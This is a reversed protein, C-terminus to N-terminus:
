RRMQCHNPYKQFRHLILLSPNAWHCNLYRILITQCNIRSTKPIDPLPDPIDLPAEVVVVLLLDDPFPEPSPEPIDLPPEPSPEPIDLPPEPSPEPIDPPLELRDVPEEVVVADFTVADVVALLPDDPIPEPSPEPIDPPLELRDVPEEVVVADAVVIVLLL